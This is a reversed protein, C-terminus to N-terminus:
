GHLRLARAPVREEAFPGDAVVDLAALFANLPATADGAIWGDLTAPSVRLCRALCSRSGLVDAALRL